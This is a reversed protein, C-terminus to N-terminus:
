AVVRTRRTARRRLAALLLAAWVLNGAAAAGPMASCGGEDRPAAKAAPEAPSSADVQTGADATAGATPGTGGGAVRKMVERQWSDWPSKCLADVEPHDPCSVPGQVDRLLLQSDFSDGGDHTVALGDREPTLPGSTWLGGAHEAICSMWRPDALVEFHAGRDSSHALGMSGVVWITDDDHVFIAAHIQETEFVPLWSDGGDQSLLLQQKPENSSTKAVMLKTDLPALALLTVDTVEPEPNIALRTWHQGGDSSRAIFHTRPQGQLLRQGSAYLVAPDSPALLLEQIFEGEQAMLLTSWSAGADQSVHVGGAGPEYTALYLTDPQTPHQLLAPSMAKGYPEVAQWSCGQDRTSRLGASSALLVRGDALFALDPRESNSIGLANTCLLQAQRDAGRVFILGRNSSMVLDDGGPQWALQLVEPAEHAVAPMAPACIALLVCLARARRCLIVLAPSLMPRM